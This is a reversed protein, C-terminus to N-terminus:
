QDHWIEFDMTVREEETEPEYMDADGLFRVAQIKLTGWTGQYGRLATKVAEALGKVAAYTEAYADIQFRPHAAGKGDLSEVSVGATRLYVLAPLTPEDPLKVPYIRGSVIAAIAAVGALYSKLGEEIM